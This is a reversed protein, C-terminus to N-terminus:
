HRAKVRQRGRSFLAAEGPRTAAISLAAPALERVVQQVLQEKGANGIVLDVGLETAARHSDLTACCGTMVLKAQRNEWRNVTAYSVGLERALDEQSLALQQRIKKVLTSSSRDENDM